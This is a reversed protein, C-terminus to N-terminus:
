SERRLSSVIETPEPFRHEDAKSFVLDGDSWVTFEGRDGPSITAPIGLEQRV